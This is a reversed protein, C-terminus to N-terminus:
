LIKMRTLPRFVFSKRLRVPPRVPMFLKLIVLPAFIMSNPSSHLTASMQIIKLKFSELKLKKQKKTILLGTYNM